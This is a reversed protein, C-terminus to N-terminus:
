VISLFRSLYDLGDSQSKEPHFQVGFVNDKEFGAIIEGGHDTKYLSDYKANEDNTIQLAYSHNFYCTMSANAPLLRSNEDIFVDNWGVHPIRTEKSERVVLKVSGEVWNFGSAGGGEEGDSAMLQMGLCIGLCSTKKDRVSHDLEDWLQKKKLEAVGAHFNGVGPLIIKDAKQVDQPNEIIFPKHDCYRVANLVSQINGADYDVIGIMMVGERYHM